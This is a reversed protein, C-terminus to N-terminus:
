KAGEKKQDEKSSKFTDNTKDRQEALTQRLEFLKKFHWDMRENVAAEGDWEDFSPLHYTRGKENIISDKHAIAKVEEQKNDTVNSFLVGSLYLITGLIAGVISGEVGFFAGILLSMGAVTVLLTNFTHLNDSTAKEM